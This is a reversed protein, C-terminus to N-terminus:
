ADAAYIDLSHKEIYRYLNIRKWNFLHFSIFWKINNHRFHFFYLELKLTHILLKFSITRKWQFVTTSSLTKKFNTLGLHVKGVIHTRSSSSYPSFYNPRRYTTFIGVLKLNILYVLSFLSFVDVRSLQGFGLSKKFAEWLSLIGERKVSWLCELLSSRGENGYM